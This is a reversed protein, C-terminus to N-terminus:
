SLRQCSAKGGKREGAGMIRRSKSERSTKGNNTEAASVGGFMTIIM